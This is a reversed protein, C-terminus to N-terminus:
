FFFEVDIFRDDGTGTVAPWNITLSPKSPTSANTVATDDAGTGEDDVFQSLGGTNVETYEGGSTDTTPIWFFGTDTSTDVEVETADATDVGRVVHSKVDWDAFDASGPNTNTPYRGMKITDGKSPVGDGNTDVIKSIMEDGSDFVHNGNLDSYAIVLTKPAPPPPPALPAPPPPVPRECRVRPGSGVGQRCVDIAPGGDLADDSGQGELRDRGAGGFLWDAETSGWLKDNGDNGFLKDRGSGGFATDNGAEGRVRDNGGDGYLKDKGGGGCITDNGGRGRVTDDGGKAVIVDAKRTGRITESKRTGVITAVKGACRPKPKAASTPAALTAATLSALLAAAAVIAVSRGITTQGM